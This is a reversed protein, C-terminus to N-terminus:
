HVGHSSPSVPSTFSFTHPIVSKFVTSLTDVSLGSQGYSFVRFELPQPSSLTYSVQFRHYQDTNQFDGAHLTQEALVRQGKETTVEIRAIPTESSEATTPPMINLTFDTQYTGPPYIKYLGYTLFGQSGRPAYLSEGKSALADHRREGIQTYFYEADYQEQRFESLFVDLQYPTEESLPLTLFEAREQPELTMTEESSFETGDPQKQQLTWTVNITRTAHYDHNTIGAVLELSAESDAPESVEVLVEPEILSYLYYTTGRIHYTKLLEARKFVEPFHRRYFTVEKNFETLFLHTVPFKQFLHEDNFFNKWAYLAHHSNEICLMPTALGALYANDLVHGLEQSINRVVYQPHAAWRAYHRGNVTFFIVLLGAIVIWRPTDPIRFSFGRQKRAWAALLDICMLSLIAGLVFSYGSSLRPLSLRSALPSHYYVPILIYVWTLWGFLWGVAWFLTNIRYPFSVTKSTALLLLSRAALVTMPPIIPVYYRTPRYSFGLFFLFHACFWLAFFLDVPPIRSRQYVLLYALYLLYLWAMILTVPTKAFITFFPNRAINRFFARPSHPLSLTKVFDGAQHISDYNPYYFVALWLLVTLLLGGALYGTLRLLRKREASNDALFVLLLLAAFPVPLFYVLLVKFIYVLFCCVGALLMLWASRRRDREQLGKQWFYCTGAICLLLPTETLGIRNYMMFIYNGGLLLLALMASMRGLAARLTVYLVALTLWSFVIPVIRLQPMGVGFLSFVGWKIYTLIPSYYFDNWEDTKWEGFLVKNRANHALAGEDFFLGGSWSLNVPPDASIHVLRILCVALFLFFILYSFTDKKM